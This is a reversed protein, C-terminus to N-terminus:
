RYMEKITGWSTEEVAIPPGCCAMCGDNFAFHNYASADVLPRNGTCIAVGMFGTIDNPGLMYYGPVTDPGMMGLNIVWLLDAQCSTFPASIGNGNIWSGITADSVVPNIVSRPSFHGALTTLKYEVAFAGEVGPELFVYVDFMQYPANTQVDCATMAEDGWLSLMQSHGNGAFVGVLLIAIVFQRLERSM